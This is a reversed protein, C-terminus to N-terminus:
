LHKKLFFFNWYMWSINEKLKEALGGVPVCRVIEFFTERLQVPLTILLKFSTSTTQDQRFSVFALAAWAVTNWMVLNVLCCSLFSLWQLLIGQSSTLGNANCALSYQIEEEEYGWPDVRTEWLVESKGPRAACKHDGLCSFFGGNRQAPVGPTRNRKTSDYILHHM